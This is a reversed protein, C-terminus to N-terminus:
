HGGKDVSLIAPGRYWGSLKLDAQLRCPISVNIPMTQLFTQIGILEKQLDRDETHKHLQHCAQGRQLPSILLQM